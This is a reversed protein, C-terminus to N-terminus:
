PVNKWATPDIAREHLVEMPQWPIPAAVATEVGGVKSRLHFVLKLFVDDRLRASRLCTTEILM